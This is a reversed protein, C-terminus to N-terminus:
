SQLRWPDIPGSISTSKRKLTAAVDIETLIGFGEEQTTRRDEHAQSVTMKTEVGFTYNTTYM